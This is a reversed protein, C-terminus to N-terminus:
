QLEGQNQLNLKDSSLLHALRVVLHSVVFTATASDLLVGSVSYLGRAFCGTQLRSGVL